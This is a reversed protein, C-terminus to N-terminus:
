QLYFSGWVKSIAKTEGTIPNRLYVDWNGNSLANLIFQLDDQSLSPLTAVPPRASPESASPKPHDQKPM